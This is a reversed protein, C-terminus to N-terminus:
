GRLIELALDEGNKTLYIQKEETRKIFNSQLLLKCIADVAKASIGAKKGIEYRDFPRDLEGIVNGAEFLCLIFREDPTRAKTM